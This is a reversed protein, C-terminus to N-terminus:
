RSRRELEAQLRESQELEDPYAKKYEAFDAEWEAKFRKGRAKAEGWNKAAEEPTVLDVTIPEATVAEFPHVESFLLILALVSLHAITSATIGPRILQWVDM